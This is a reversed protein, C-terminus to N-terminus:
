RQKIRLNCQSRSKQQVKERGEAKFIKHRPLTLGSPMWFSYNGSDILFVQCLHDAYGPQLDTMEHALEPLKAKDVVVAVGPQRNLTAEEADDQVVLVVTCLLCIPM